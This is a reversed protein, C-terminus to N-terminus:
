VYHMQKQNYLQSIREKLKVRAKSLNSRSTAETINLMEAIAKHSYGEMINLNFVLKYGPPLEQILELIQEPPIDIGDDEEIEINQDSVNELNENETYQTLLKSDKKYQNIANNVMIRRIWGEFSGQFDYKDLSKFVKMFGEQLLDKAEEHNRAYQKCVNLM